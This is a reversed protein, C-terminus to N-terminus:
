EEEKEYAMRGAAEEILAETGSDTEQWFDLALIEHRNDLVYLDSVKQGDTWLEPSHIIEYRYKTVTVGDKKIEKEKIIDFVNGRDFPFKRKTLSIIAASPSSYYEMSLGGGENERNEKQHAALFTRESKKYGEEGTYGLEEFSIPFDVHRVYAKEQEQEPFVRIAVEMSLVLILFTVVFGAVTYAQIKETRAGTDNRKIYSFIKDCLFYAILFGIVFTVARAPPTMGVLILFIIATLWFYTRRRVRSLDGFLQKQGEKLCKEAKRFWILDSLGSWMWSMWVTTMLLASGLREYSSCTDGPVRWLLYSIVLYIFALTLSGIVRSPTLVISKANELQLRMDTEVPLLDEQETYFVQKVSGGYQLHWGAAECLEWYHEKEETKENDIESSDPMLAVCYRRACPEGKEFQQISGGSKLGCLHWGRKAMERLYDAFADNEYEKFNWFTVKHKM